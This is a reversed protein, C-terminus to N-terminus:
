VDGIACEGAVRGVAAAGEDIIGHTNNGTAGVWAHGGSKDVAGKATVIAIGIDTACKEIEVTEHADLTAGDCAVARRNAADGPIRARGRERANLVTNNGIVAGHAAAGITANVHIENRAIVDGVSELGAVM